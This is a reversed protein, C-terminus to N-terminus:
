RDNKQHVVVLRIGSTKYGFYGWSSAGGSNSANSPQGQGVTSLKLMQLHNGICAVGNLCDRDTCPLRGNYYPHILSLLVHLRNPPCYCGTVLAAVLAQHVRIATNHGICEDAVMDHDVLDLAREVLKEV